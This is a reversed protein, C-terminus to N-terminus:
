IKEEKRLYDVIDKSRYFFKGNWKYLPFYKNNQLKKHIKEEVSIIGKDKPPEQLLIM